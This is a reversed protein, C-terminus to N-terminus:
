DPKTDLIYIRSSRLGPVVLYRREVHPHPANPCLCSSCANWGFHHFEDGANPMAVMGVIQGYTGSAPDVDVSAIADGTKRAPAFAALYALKEAPAQAAPPPSSYLAPDPQWTAMSAERQARGRAGMRVHLRRMCNRGRYQKGWTQAARRHAHSSRPEGRSSRP